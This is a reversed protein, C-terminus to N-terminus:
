EFTYGIKKILHPLLKQYLNLAYVSFGFDNPHLRGDSFFETKKHPVLNWGDIVTINEYPATLRRIAGDIETTPAGYPTEKTYDARWTPTIAFIPTNPYLAALKKFFTGCNKDFEEQTRRNWDNTGYAVTIFDPTEEAAECLLLPYFQEGGIGKNVIDADLARAVTNAYSFSPFTSTSGHTISDGYALMKYRRSAPEFSAGDSLEVNAIEARANYPFYIEVLKEGESLKVCVRANPIYSYPVSIHKIMAGDEYIDFNGPAVCEKGCSVDFAIHDSDTKFAFRVGAPKFTKSFFEAARPHESYVKEEAETFRMFKYYGNTEEIRVAGRTMSRIQQDNLIM